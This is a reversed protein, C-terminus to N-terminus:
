PLRARNEFSEFGVFGMSNQATKKGSMGGELRPPVSPTSAERRPKTRTRPGVIHFVGQTGQIEVVEPVSGPPVASALRGWRLGGPLQELVRHAGGQRRHM